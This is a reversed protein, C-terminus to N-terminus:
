IKRVSLPLGANQTVASLLRKEYIARTTQYLREVEGQVDPWEENEVISQFRYLFDATIPANNAVLYQHALMVDKQDRLDYAEGNWISDFLQNEQALWAAANPLSLTYKLLWPHVLYNSCVYAVFSSSQMNTHPHADLLKAIQKCCPAPLENAIDWLISEAYPDFGKQLAFAFVKQFFVNKGRPKTNRFRQDQSSLVRLVSISEKYPLNALSALTYTHWDIKQVCDISKQLDENLIAADLQMLQEHLKKPIKKMCTPSFHNM